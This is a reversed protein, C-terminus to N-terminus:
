ARLEPFAWPHRRRYEIEIEGLSTKADRAERIRKLIKLHIDTYYAGRGRGGKAPPLVRKKSYYHISSRTFGEEMLDEISYMAEPIIRGM